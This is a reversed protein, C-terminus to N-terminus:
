MQRQSAIDVRGPLQAVADPPRAQRPFDPSWSVLTAPLARRAQGNVTLSLSLAVSLLGGISPL